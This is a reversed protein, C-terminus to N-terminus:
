DRVARVYVGFLLARVILVGWLFSGIDVSRSRPGQWSASSPWLRRRPTESHQRASLGGKPSHGLHRCPCHSFWNGGFLPVDNDRYTHVCACMHIHICVCVNSCIHIYLLICTNVPTDTHARAEFIKYFAEFRLRFRRM